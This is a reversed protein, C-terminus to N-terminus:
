LSMLKIFSSSQEITEIEGPIFIASVEKSMVFMVLGVITLTVFGIFASLKTVKEAREIKGAGINQGVLTSTAMSLGIGPIVVFSLIRSGIGYAALTVTGFTTVLFVMLTMGLARASHEISAPFGIIFMKKILKFDPMLDNLNLRIEHSGRLLLFVAIVSALAQSGISAYAAGSVGFGPVFGYGFILLPDLILNLLVTGSVIYLPTKVDGIGRMLSQYVMYVFMFAIGSFIIQMYSVAGGYVDSSVGMLGILYPSLLYGIFSLVISLVFVVMITQSTIHNMQKLDNKGKFQAILISGAMAFGGAFSIIFFILPFSVSVAAVAASGLKGVWFTDVLQYATQLINGFIIPISLKVLSTLISGETLNIKKKM